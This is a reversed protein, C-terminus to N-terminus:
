AIVPAVVKAAKTQISTAAVVPVPAAAPVPVPPNIPVPDGVNLVVEAAGGERWARIQLELDFLLPNIEHELIILLPGHATNFPGLDEARRLHRAVIEAADILAM